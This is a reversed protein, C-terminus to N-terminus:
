NKPSMTVCPVLMEDMSIGGHQFTQKYVQAYTNYNNPYGFFDSGVCLMYSSSVNPCPLGVQLPKEIVFVDKSKCNLNKGVKYRLNTNTEKDALILVPNQVRTTGHDTTLVLKYGLRALEALMAYTPSHKFWSLTLSRYAAEDNCLERMMKSDTRSHSLMDIFNLVLVVFDSNRGKFQRTIKECFDSENVKYYSFSDKRRYRELMAKILLEENANHSEEDGEEIWLNPYLEKIQAPLLGSFITNRAYQTATPLITTYLQEEDITFLESLLPQITKWQDYRFNDIVVLCTKDGHDLLPFIKTKMLDVSLLPRGGAAAAASKGVQPVFWSEYNTKVWKAFAANAQEKQMSLMQRMGSDIDGLSIDWRSLTRHIAYWEDITRASDIMYQIDGFEERYTKNTQEEVIARQHVHKKLCMLIQSPNVPKILYDAIQQGIAQEMIREEESKTIMVVPTSPHSVKIEELAELGSMGPMNEDLFVIDPNEVGCLEVADAGSTAPIVHYGKQELYLIYPKLLDMEDDAWIIKVM